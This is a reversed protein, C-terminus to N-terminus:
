RLVTCQHIPYKASLYRSLYDTDSVLQVRFWEDITLTGKGAMCNEIHRISHHLVDALVRKHDVAPNRSDMTLVILRLLQPETLTALRLSATGNAGTGYRASNARAKASAPHKGQAM